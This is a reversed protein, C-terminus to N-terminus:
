RDEYLSILAAKSECVASDLNIKFDDYYDIINETAMSKPLCNLFCNSLNISFNLDSVLSILHNQSPKDFNQGEGKGEIILERKIYSCAKIIKFFQPIITGYNKPFCLILKAIDSLLDITALSSLIIKFQKEGSYIKLTIVQKEREENEKDKNLDKEIKVEKELKDKNEEEKKDENEQLKLNFFWYLLREAGVKRSNEDIDEFIKTSTILRIKDKVKKDIISLNKFNDKKISERVLFDSKEFWKFIFSKSSKKRLNSEKNSFENIMSILEISNPMQKIIEVCESLILDETITYFYINPSEALLSLSNESLFSLKHLAEENIEKEINKFEDKFVDLISQLKKSNLQNENLQNSHFSNFEQIFFNEITSNLEFFCKKIDNFFMINLLFPLLKQLLTKEETSEYASLAELTGSIFFTRVSDITSLFPTILLVRIIQRIKTYFNLDLKFVLSLLEKIKELKNTKQKNVKNEILKVKKGTLFEEIVKTTSILPLIIKESLGSFKSKIYLSDFLEEVSKFSSCGDSIDENIFSIIRKIKNLKLSNEPTQETKEIKYNVIADSTEEKLLDLLDSLAKDSSKTTYKNFDNEYNQLCILSQMKPKVGGVASVLHSDYHEKTLEKTKGLIERSKNVLDFVIQYKTTSKSLTILCQNCNKLKGLLSLYNKLRDLNRKKIGLKISNITNNVYTKKFILNKEKISQIKNSSEEIIEAVILNECIYNFIKSSHKLIKLIEEEIYGSQLILQSTLQNISEGDLSFKSSSIKFNEEETFYSADILTMAKSSTYYSDNKNEDKIKISFESFEKETEHSSNEISIENLFNRKIVGEGHNKKYQPILHSINSLYERYNESLLKKLNKRLPVEFLHHSEKINSVNNMSNTKKLIDYADVVDPDTEVRSETFTTEQIQTQTLSRDFFSKQPFENKTTNPIKTSLKKTKKNTTSSFGFGYFTSNLLSHNMDSSINIPTEEEIEEEKKDTLMTLDKEADISEANYFLKSKFDKMFSYEEPKNLISSFNQCKWKRLREINVKKEKNEADNMVKNKFVEELEKAKFSTHPTKTHSYTNINNISKNPSNLKTEPNSKTKLNIKEMKIKIKIRLYLILLLRM